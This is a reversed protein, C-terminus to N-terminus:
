FSLLMLYCLDIKKKMVLELVLSRQMWTRKINSPHFTTISAARLRSAFYFIIEQLKNEDNWPNMFIM